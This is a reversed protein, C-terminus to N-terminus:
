ADRAARSRRIAYWAFGGAAAAAGVAIAALAPKPPVGGMRQRLSVPRSFHLVPWDRATAERRLQRDPNVVYPHGVLELMPLDTISDSYAYSSALDYGEREVLERVAIAKNEAYAYLEIEGTYRGDEIKMRTGIAHDAGLMQGIPEVIEAGAASVIVVDRGAARHDEILTAAEDYIIPEVTQLLTEAVIERVQQVPWGACLSSLYQRMREMQDHDAGGLLFVFQSYASRLVDRRGILGGKYLPRSFALTSSKAIITKDLDFFAAARSGSPQVVRMEDLRPSRPEAHPVPADAVDTRDTATDVCRAYTRSALPTRGRVRQGCDRAPIRRDVSRPRRDV